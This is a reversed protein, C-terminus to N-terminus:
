HISEASKKEAILARQYKSVAAVFEAGLGRDKGIKECTEEDTPWSAALLSQMLRKDSNMLDLVREEKVQNTLIQFPTTDSAQVEQLKQEPNGRFLNPERERM